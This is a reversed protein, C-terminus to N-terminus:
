TSSVSTLRATAISIPLIVRAPNMFRVVSLPL